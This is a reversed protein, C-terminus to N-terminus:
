IIDGTDQWGHRMHTAKQLWYKKKTSGHIKFEPGECQVTDQAREYKKNQSQALNSFQGAPTFTTIRRGGKWLNGLNSANTGHRNCETVLIYKCFISM